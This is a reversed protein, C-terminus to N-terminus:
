LLAERIMLLEAKTFNINNARPLRDIRRRGFQRRNQLQRRELKRREAQVQGDKEKQFINSVIALARELPSKSHNKYQKLRNLYDDVYCLYNDETELLYGKQHLARVIELAKLDDFQSKEIIDSLRAKNEISNLLSIEDPSLDHYNNHSTKLVFVNLPPLNQKIKDWENIRRVGIDILELNSKFIKKQNNVTTMEVEFTGMTWTFMRLIAEDPNLNCLSADVVQGQSVLVVGLSSNHKLKIVASKNGLELTQILDILNMETLHGSFVRSAEDDDEQVAATEKILNKVRAVVEETYFPKSIYDDVGLEINEIREDVKKQNSIFIFPTTKFEAKSRIEKFLEHGNIQPLDVESIILDVQYDRAVQLIQQGNEWCIVEFGAQSLANKLPILYTKDDDILLIHSKKNV